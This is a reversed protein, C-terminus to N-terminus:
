RSEGSANRMSRYVTVLLLLVGDVAVSVWTSKAIGSANIASVVLAGVIGIQMAYLKADQSM